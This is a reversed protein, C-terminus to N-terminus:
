EDPVFAFAGVPFVRKGNLCIAFGKPDAAQVMATLTDPYLPGFDYSEPFTVKHTFEHPKSM